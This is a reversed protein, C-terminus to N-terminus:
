TRRLRACSRRRNNGRRKRCGSNRRACARCFSSARGAPRPAVQPLFLGSRGHFSLHIGRELPEFDLPSSAKQLPGLVTVEVDLESLEERTVPQALFRPDALVSEAAAMLMERLPRGTDLLGICGRLAHTDRRHLSVFCGAPQRFIPDDLSPLPRPDGGLRRTIVDSALDLIAQQTQPSIDM